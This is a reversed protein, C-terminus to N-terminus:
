HRKDTAAPEITIKVVCLYANVKVSCFIVTPFNM